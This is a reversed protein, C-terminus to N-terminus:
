YEVKDKVIYSNPYFPKIENHFKLAELKSKFDGVRVKFYPSQPIIYTETERFQSSFNAETILADNHSNTGSQSFIQIRFGDVTSITDCYHKYNALLKTISPDEYIILNGKSVDMTSDVLQARIAENITSKEKSPYLRWDKDQNQTYAFLPLGFFIIIAFKRMLLVNCYEHLY